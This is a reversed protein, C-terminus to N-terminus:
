AAHHQKPDALVYWIDEYQANSANQAEKIKLLKLRSLVHNYDAGRGAGSQCEIAISIAKRAALTNGSLQVLEAFRGALQGIRDPQRLRNRNQSLGGRVVVYTFSDNTDCPRL